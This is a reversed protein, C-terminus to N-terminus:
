VGFWKQMKLAGKPFIFYCQLIQMINKALNSRICGNPNKRPVIDSGLLFLAVCVFNFKKKPFGRSYDKPLSKQIKRYYRKSFV